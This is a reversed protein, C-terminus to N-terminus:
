SRIILVLSTSQNLTHCHILKRNTRVPMAYRLATEHDAISIIRFKDSSEERRRLHWSILWSDALWSWASFWYLIQHKKKLMSMLDRSRYHDVYTLQKWTDGTSTQKRCRCGREASSRFCFHPSLLWPITDNAHWIVILLNEKFSMRGILRVKQLLEWRALEGKTLMQWM